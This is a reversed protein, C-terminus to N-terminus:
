TRRPPPTPPNLPRCDAVGLSEHSMALELSVTTHLPEEEWKVEKVKWNSKCTLREQVRSM